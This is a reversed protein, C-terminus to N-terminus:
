PLIERLGFASFGIIVAIVAYWFNTSLMVIGAGTFGTGVSLLAANVINDKTM